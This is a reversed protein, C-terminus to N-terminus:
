TGYLIPKEAFHVVNQMGMAVETFLCIPILERSGEVHINFRSLYSSTEESM